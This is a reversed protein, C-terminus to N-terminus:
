TRESMPALLSYRAVFREMQRYCEDALEVARRNPGGTTPVTLVPGEDSWESFISDAGNSSRSSLAMHKSDNVVDRLVRLEQSGEFLQDVENKLQPRAQSIWDRMAFLSGMYAIVYDRLDFGDGSPAAEQVRAHWRKVQEWQLWIPDPGLSAYLIRTEPKKSM